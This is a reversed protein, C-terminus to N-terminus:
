REMLLTFLSASQEHGPGILRTKRSLIRDVVAAFQEPQLQQLRYSHWFEQAEWYEDDSQHVRIDVAHGRKGREPM